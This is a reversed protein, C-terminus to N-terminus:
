LFGLERFSATGGEALVLHDILRVGLPDLTRALLRTAERDARSPTPDGGPHNHAMVLGTADFALLDAVIARFPLDLMTSFEGRVHRFGLFRGGAGLYVFAATEVRERALPAFLAEAADPGSLRMGSFSATALEV